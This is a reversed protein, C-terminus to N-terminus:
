RPATSKDVLHLARPFAYAMWAKRLRENAFAQDGEGDKKGDCEYWDRVADVLPQLGQLADYHQGAIRRWLGDQGAAIVHERTDRLILALGHVSQHLDNPGHNRQEHLEIILNELM